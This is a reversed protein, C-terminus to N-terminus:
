LVIKKERFISSGSHRAHGGDNLVTKLLKISM